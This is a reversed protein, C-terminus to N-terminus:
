AVLSGNVVNNVVVPTVAGTTYVATDCDNISNNTIFVSTWYTTMIGEEVKNVGGAGNTGWVINGIINCNRSVGSSAGGTVSIGRSYQYSGYVANVINGTITVNRMSAFANNAVEVVIGRYIWNYVNNGSIIVGDMAAASSVEDASVHIGYSCGYINNDVINFSHIATQVAADAINHVYIAKGHPDVSDTLGHITNNSITIDNGGHVDIANHTAITYIHNHDIRLHEVMPSTTDTEGITETSIAYAETGEAASNHITNDCSECSDCGNYWEIGSYTYNYIDNRNVHVNYSKAHSTTNAGVRVGCYMDHIVNETIWINNGATVYFMINNNGDSQYCELNNIRINTAGSITFGNFNGTKAIHPMDGTIIVDTDTITITETLAYVDYKIFISVNNTLISNMVTSFVAGSFTVRGVSNDQACYTSGSKYVTYNHDHPAFASSTRSVM